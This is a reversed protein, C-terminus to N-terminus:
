GTLCYISAFLHFAFLFHRAKVHSWKDQKGKEMIIAAKKAVAGWLTVRGPATLQLPSTLLITNHTCLITSLEIQRM